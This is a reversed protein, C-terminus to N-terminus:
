LRELLCLDARGAAIATDALDVNILYGSAVTPIRAENRLRDALQLQFGPRYSPVAEPVTQGSVPHIMDCGADKFARAMHVAEEPTIGGRMCDDANFTVILARPWADRVARLVELPYRLRNQLPGGFEDVRHNALPSLFGGLLYGHAMHLDLLSVDSSAVRSAAQAFAERVRERDGADMEKPVASSSTYPVPSAALLQWGGERLPRDLGESRPRTSGRRGAHGLRVVAPNASLVSELTPDDLTIRGESSVAV